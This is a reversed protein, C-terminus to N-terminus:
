GLSVREGIVSARGGGGGGDGAGVGNCRHKEGDRAALAEMEALEEVGSEEARTSRPGYLAQKSFSATKLLDKNKEEMGRCGIGWFEMEKTIYSGTGPM